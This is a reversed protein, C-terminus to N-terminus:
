KRSYSCLSEYYKDISLTSKRLYEESYGLLIFLVEVSTALSLRLYEWTNAMLNDDVFM